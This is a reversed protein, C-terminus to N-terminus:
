RQDRRQPAPLLLVLQEWTNRSSKIPKSISTEKNNVSLMRLHSLIYKFILLILYSIIFLLYALPSLYVSHKFLIGRNRKDISRVLWSWLSTVFLIWNTDIITYKFNVERGMYLNQRIFSVNTDNMALSLKGSHYRLYNQIEQTADLIAKYVKIQDAFAYIGEM